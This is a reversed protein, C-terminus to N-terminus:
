IGIFSALNCTLLMIMSANEMLFYPCTEKRIIFFDGVAVGNSPHDIRNMMEMMKLKEDIRIRSRALLSALDVYLKIGMTHLDAALYLGLTLMILLLIGALALVFAVAESIINIILGLFILLDASFSCYVFFVLSIYKTEIGLLDIENQWKWTMQNVKKMSYSNKNLALYSGITEILSDMQFRLIFRSLILHIGRVCLGCFSISYVGWEAISWLCSSVILPITTFLQYYRVKIIVVLTPLLIAIFVNARLCNYILIHFYIKFRGFKKISMKFYGPSYSDADIVLYKYVAKYNGKIECNLIYERALIMTILLILQTFLISDHDAIDIIPDSLIVQNDAAGFLLVSALRVILLVSVLRFLNNIIMSQTPKRSDFWLLRVLWDLQKLLEITVNEEAPLGIIRYLSYRIRNTLKKTNSECNFTKTDM